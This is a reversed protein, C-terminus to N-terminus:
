LLPQKKEQDYDFKGGPRIETKFTMFSKKLVLRWVAPKVIVPRALLPHAAEELPV